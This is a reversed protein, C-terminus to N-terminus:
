PVMKTDEFRLADAVSSFIKSVQGIQNIMDRDQEWLFEVYVVM